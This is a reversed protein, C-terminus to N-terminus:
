GQLLVLFAHSFDCFVDELGWMDVSGASSSSDPWGAISTTGTGM